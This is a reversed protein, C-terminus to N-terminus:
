TKDCMSLVRHLTPIDVGFLEEVNTPLKRISRNYERENRLDSIHLPIKAIFLGSPGSFCGSSDIRVNVKLGSSFHYDGPVLVLDLALLTNSYANM